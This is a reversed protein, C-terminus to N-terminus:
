CVSPWYCNQNSPLKCRRRGERGRVRAGAITGKHHMDGRSGKETGGEGSATQWHRRKEGERGQARTCRKPGQMPWAHYVCGPCLGGRHQLKSPATGPAGMKDRKTIKIRERESKERHQSRNRFRKM